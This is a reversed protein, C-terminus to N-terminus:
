APTDAHPSGILDAVLAVLHAVDFPKRVFASITPDMGDPRVAASMMIVPVPPLDEQARLERYAEYGDGGPMMVDMLVLDPHEEALMELMARGHTAERVCYGEDQLIARVVARIAPEDDVVLVTKV